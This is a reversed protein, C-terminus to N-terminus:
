ETGVLHEMRKVLWRSVDGTKGGQFGGSQREAILETLGIDGGGLIAARNKSYPILLGAFVKLSTQFKALKIM